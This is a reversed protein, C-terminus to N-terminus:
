VKKLLNQAIARAAADCEFIDEFTAAEGRPAAALTGEAVDFIKTYKLEGRLFANVAVEDAANLVCPALGGQKAAKLALSFLPYNKEEVPEFSLSFPKSFDFSRVSTPLREPYTLALQIPIEMTPYSMQALISGDGFEVLSHVVSDKQIVAEIRDYGVGYLMRAEIIEYGKNMLTASDVSIKAGMKWTPHALASQPTVNELKDYPINKFPGGSATIILRRVPKKRDFAVCQWIASHESDVPIITCGSKEAAANVLEGACVMTEKNALALPIGRQACYISYKVGAFGSAANVVLDAGDLYSLDDAATFYKCGFEEAQERLLASEGGATVSNVKFRSLYRRCVGLTQRGISGTSGIVAVSKM